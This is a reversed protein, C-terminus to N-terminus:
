RKAFTAAIRYPKGEFFITTMPTVPVLPFVDVMFKMQAHRMAPPCLVPMIVVAFMRM